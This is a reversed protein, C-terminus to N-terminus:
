EFDYKEQLLRARTSATDLRFLAADLRAQIRDFEEQFLDRDQIAKEIQDLITKREEIPLEYFKIKM